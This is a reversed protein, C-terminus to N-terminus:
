SIYNCDSNENDKQNCNTINEHIKIKKYDRIMYSVVFFAFMLLIVGLMFFQFRIEGRFNGDVWEGTRADPIYAIDQLFPARITIFSYVSTVVSMVGITTLILYPYLKKLRIYRNKILRHKGNSKILIVGLFLFPSAVLFLQINFVENKILFTPVLLCLGILTFVYGIGVLHNVLFSVFGEFFRKEKKPDRKELRDAKMLLLLVVFVFVLVGVTIVNDLFLTLPNM